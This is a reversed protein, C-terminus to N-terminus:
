LMISVGAWVGQAPRKRNWKKMWWWWGWRGWWRFPIYVPPDTPLSRAVERGDPHGTSSQAQSLKEANGRPGRRRDCLLGAMGSAAKGAAGWERDKPSLFCISAQFMLVLKLRAVQLVRTYEPWPSCRPEKELSLLGSCVLSLALCQHVSHKLWFTFTRCMNELKKERRFGECHTELVAKRYKLQNNITPVM